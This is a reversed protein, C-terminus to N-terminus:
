SRRIVVEADLGLHRGLLAAARGVAVQEPKTLKRMPQVDVTVVERSLKRKWTGAIVGDIALV